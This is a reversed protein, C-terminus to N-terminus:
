RALLRDVEALTAVSADPVRAAHAGSLESARAALTPQTLLTRILPLFDPREARALYVLGSGQREAQRAWLYQETHLPLALTAKGYQLALAQLGGGHCIVADVAPLVQALDLTRETYQLHAASRRQAPAIGDHFCLVETHQLRALGALMRETLPWARRLYAFLRYQPREPSWNPTDGPGPTQGVHRVQPREAVYDLEAPMRLCYASAAFGQALTDVAPLAAAARATNLHQLLRLAREASARAQIPEWDRFIAWAGTDTSHFGNDYALTPVLGHAAALAVPAADAILLDAQLLGLLQRWALFVETLVAAEAGGADFWIVDALSNQQQAPQVVAPFFPACHVAVDLGGLVQRLKVPDRTVIHVQDGRELLKRALTVLPLAHGYGHGLEWALVIRAPM